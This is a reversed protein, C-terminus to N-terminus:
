RALLFYVDGVNTGTPGTQIHGGLRRFVRYSDNRRLARDLDIGRRSAAARTQGSTIAGAMETPGDRGDTGCGGIWVDQLGGIERAAALAFEQARGGRGAGRVTVTLEGGALVCLPRKARSGGDAVERAIAGFVKAVERAEGTLSTTLIVPRLGMRRAKRAMADIVRGNDGITCSYVRGFGTVGPKPTEPLRGQRGRQLHRRVGPSLRPWLGYRRLVDIADAYTTPDPATLGSGITAPDGGVVDSLLLTVIPARCAAALRGGKIASLHKRVTNVEHIDAGARLLRTTVAQKDRLTLGPAPLPLLSSAGGSVLVILLDRATLEGALRLVHAAARAGARDPTPHRAEVLEIRRTSVAQGYPVVVLGRTLFGELIGELGVAMAGAAKGAGVVTISRYRGLDYRRTGVRLHRGRRTVRARLAALPDAARLGAELLRQLLVRAPREPVEIRM